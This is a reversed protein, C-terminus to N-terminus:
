VAHAPAHHLTQGHHLGDLVATGVAVLLNLNILLAQAVKRSFADVADAVVEHGHQVPSTGVQEVVIWVASRVQIEVVSLKGIEVDIDQLALTCALFPSLELEGLSPAFASVHQLFAVLQGLGHSGLFVVCQHLGDDDLRLSEHRAVELLAVSLRDLLEAFEEVEIFADVLCLQTGVHLVEQLGDHGSALFVAHVHANMGVIGGDLNESQGADDAGFLIDLPEEIGHGVLM